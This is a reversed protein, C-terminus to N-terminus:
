ASPKTKKMTKMIEDLLQLQDFNEVDASHINNRKVYANLVPIMLTNFILWARGALATNTGSLIINFSIIEKRQRDKDRSTQNANPHM